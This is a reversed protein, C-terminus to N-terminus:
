AATHFLSNAEGLHVCYREIRTQTKASMSLDTSIVRIVQSTSLRCFSRLNSFCRRSRSTRWSTARHPYACCSCQMEMVRNHALLSTESEQPTNATKDVTEEKEEGNDMMDCAIYDLDGLNNSMDGNLMPEKSEFEDEHFYPDFKQDDDLLPADVPEDKLEKEDNLIDEQKIEDGILDSGFPMDNTEMEGDKMVQRFIEMASKQ